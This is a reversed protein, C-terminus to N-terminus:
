ILVRVNKKNMPKIGSDLVMIDSVRPMFSIMIIEYYYYYYYVKKM